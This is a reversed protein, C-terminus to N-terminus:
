AKTALAWEFFRVIQKGMVDRDARNVLSERAKQTAEPGIYDAFEEVLDAIFEDDMNLLDSVMKIRGYGAAIAFPFGYSTSQLTMQPHNEVCWRFLEYHNFIIAAIMLNAKAICHPKECTREIWANEDNLDDANHFDHFYGEVPDSFDRAQDYVLKEGVYMVNSLFFTESPDIINAECLSIMRGPYEILARMVQEGRAIEQMSTLIHEIICDDDDEKEEKIPENNNFTTPENSENM